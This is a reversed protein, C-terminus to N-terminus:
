TVSPHTLRDGSLKLLNGFVRKLSIILHNGNM